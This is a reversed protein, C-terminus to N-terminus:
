SPPADFASVVHLHPTSKLSFSAEAFCKEGVPSLLRLPRNKKGTGPHSAYM